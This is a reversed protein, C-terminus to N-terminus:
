VEFSFKDKVWQQYDGRVKGAVKSYPYKKTLEREPCIGKLVVCEDYILGEVTWKGAVM